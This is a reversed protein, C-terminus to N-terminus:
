LKGTIVYKIRKFIKKIRYFIDEKKPEEKPKSALVDFDEQDVIDFVKEKSEAEVQSIIEFIQHIDPIPSEKSSYQALKEAYLEQQKRQNKREWVISALDEQDKSESSKNM